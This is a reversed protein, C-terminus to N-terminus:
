YTQILKEGNSGASETRALDSLTLNVGLTSGLWHLPVTNVRRLKTPRPRGRIRAHRKYDCSGGLCLLPMLSCSSPQCGAVASLLRGAFFSM